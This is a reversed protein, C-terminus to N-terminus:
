LVPAASAAISATTLSPGILQPRGSSTRLSVGQGSTPLAGGREVARRQRRTPDVGHAVLAAFADINQDRVFRRLREEIGDQFSRGRTIVIGVSIGGDAHLRNFNELDRDFFSDKNKWEIELAITGAAFKKVHDIEHSRSQTATLNIRKEIQFRVKHWGIVTRIIWSKRRM